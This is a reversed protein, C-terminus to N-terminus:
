MLLIEIEGIIDKIQKGEIKCNDIFADSSSFYQEDDSYQRGFLIGKPTSPIISYAIGNFKFEIDSGINLSNKLDDIGITMIIIGKGLLTKM